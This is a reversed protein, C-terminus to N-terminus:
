FRKKGGWYRLDFMGPERQAQAAVPDSAQVADHARQEGDAIERLVDWARKEPGDHKCAKAEEATDFVRGCGCHPLNVEVLDIGYAM